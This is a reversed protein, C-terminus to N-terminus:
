LDEVVISMKTLDTEEKPTEIYKTAFQLENM